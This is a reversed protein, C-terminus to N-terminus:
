VESSLFKLIHLFLEPPIKSLIGTEIRSGSKKHGDYSSNSGEATLGGYGIIDRVDIKVDGANQQTTQLDDERCARKM